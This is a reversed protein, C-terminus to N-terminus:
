NQKLYKEKENSFDFGNLELEEIKQLLNDKFQKYNKTEKHKVKHNLSLNVKEVKKITEIINEEFYCTDFKELIYKIALSNPHLYDEKYFRYDRLDDLVYEYAPFYEVSNNQECIDKIALHLTAKSQNNEIFGDRLHRVPSITFIIKIESNFEQIKSIFENTNKIIEDVSLLRKNFEASAVKHCNAVINNEKEYVWATGLTIFLFKTSKLFKHTLGIQTNINKLVENKNSASMDSHFDFSSWIEQHQFLDNESFQKKEIANSLNNFVSIPNYIIGFPNSLVNFKRKALINSVNESFCSGIFLLNDNYNIKFNSSFTDFKTRLNM